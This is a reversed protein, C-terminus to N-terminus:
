THAHCTGECALFCFVLEGLGPLQFPVTGSTELVGNM